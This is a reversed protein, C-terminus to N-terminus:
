ILIDNVSNIEIAYTVVKKNKISYLMSPLLTKKGIVLYFDKTKIILGDKNLDIKM